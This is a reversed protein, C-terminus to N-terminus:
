PFSTLNSRYRLYEKSAQEAPLSKLYELWCFFNKVLQSQLSIPNEFYCQQNFKGAGKLAPLCAGKLIKVWYPCMGCYRYHDFM